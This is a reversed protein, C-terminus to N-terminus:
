SYLFASPKCSISVATTRNAEDDSSSESKASFSSILEIKRHFILFINTLCLLCIFLHVM